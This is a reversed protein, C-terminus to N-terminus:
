FDPEVPPAEPAEGPLVSEVRDLVDGLVRFDRRQEESLDVWRSPEGGDVGLPGRLRDVLAVLELLVGRSSGPSAVGAAVRDVVRGLRAVAEQLSASRVHVDEPPVWGGLSSVSGAGAPSRPTEEGAPAAVGGVSGPASPGGLEIDTTVGVTPVGSSANGAGEGGGVVPTSAGPQGVAPSSGHSREAVAEVREVGSLEVTQGDGGVRDVLEVAGDRAVLAEGEGLDGAREDARDRPELSFDMAAIAAADVRCCDCGPRRGGESVERGGVVGDVPGEASAAGELLHIVLREQWPHLRIGLIRDLQAVLEASAEHGHSTAQLSASRVHLHEPTVWGGLPSASGAGAPSRPTEEGAPAAVGGVSGPASPGGLEIDTPVGVTPVVGDPAGAGSPGFVALAPVGSQGVSPSSDHADLVVGPVDRVGGGTDPAAGSSVVADAREGPLDFLECLDDLAAGALLAASPCVADLFRAVADITEAAAARDLRDVVTGLVEAGVAQRRREWEEPQAVMRLANAELLGALLVEDAASLVAAVVSGSAALNAPPTPLPPVTPWAARADEISKRVDELLAEQRALEDRLSSGSGDHGHSTVQILVEDLSAEIRELAAAIGRVVLALDAPAAAGSSSGAALADIDALNEM